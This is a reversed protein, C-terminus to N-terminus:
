YKKNIPQNIVEPTHLNLQNKPNALILVVEYFKFFNM